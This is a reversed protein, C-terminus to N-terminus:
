RAATTANSARTGMCARRHGTARCKVLLSASSAPGPSTPMRLRHPISRGSTTRTTHQPKLRGTKHTPLHDRGALSSMQGSRKSATSRLLLCKTYLLRSILSSPRRRFAAISNSTKLNNYSALFCCLREKAPKNINPQKSRLIIWINYTNQSCYGTLAQTHSSTRLFPPCMTWKRLIYCTNCLQLMAM